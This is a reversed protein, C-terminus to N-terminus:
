IDTRADAKRGEVQEPAMYHITGLITGKATGPGATTAATGGSLSVPSAAGQLKALGFDLLKPGSKTLMVNAPKPDRHVIGARHAKDLADAIAVGISLVQDLSLPGKAKALREALTEGELLEM